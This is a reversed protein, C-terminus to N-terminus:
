STIHPAMPFGPSIKMAPRPSSLFIMNGIAAPARSVIQITLMPEMSIVIGPQLITDIDERLELGSERGCYHSLVGFSHGYGFTNYQLRNREEYFANIKETVDACSVGPKLLSIGYEHADGKCQWTTLSMAGVTDVFLKRELATYYDSIM